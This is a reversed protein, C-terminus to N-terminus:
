IHLLDEDSDDHFSVLKAPATPKRQGPRFKGKKAKEGPVLGMREGERERVVKCPPNRLAQASEVDAVRGSHVKVEPVALVEDESDQDDVRLSTLAEAKVAKTVTIHGNEQGDKSPRPTTVQIEEMLWETEHEDTTEEKNVQCPTFASVMLSLLRGDAAPSSEQYLGGCPRERPCSTLVLVM